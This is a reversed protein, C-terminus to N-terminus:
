KHHKRTIIDYCTHSYRELSLGSTYKQMILCKIEFLSIMIMMYHYCIYSHLFPLWETIQVSCCEAVNRWKGSPISSLICHSIMADCRRIAIKRQKIALWPLTNSFLLNLIWCLTQTNYEVRSNHQMLTYIRSTNEYNLASQVFGSIGSREAILYGTTWLKGQTNM